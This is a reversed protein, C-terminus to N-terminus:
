CLFYHNGSAYPLARRIFQARPLRIASIPLCFLHSLYANLIGKSVSIEEHSHTLIRPKSGVKSFKVHRAESFIRSVVFCDAQPHSYIYIYITGKRCSKFYGAWDTPATFYASEIEAFFTFGVKFSHGPYSVLDDSPSAGTRSSELIHLVRENGNSGLGSKSPTTTATLIGDIPWVISFVLLWRKCIQWVISFLPHM